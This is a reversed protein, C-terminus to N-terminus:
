STLPLTDPMAVSFLRWGKHLAARADIVYEGNGKAVTAFTWSGVKAAATDEQARVGLCAALLAWLFVIKKM